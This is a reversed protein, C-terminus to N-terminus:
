AWGADQLVGVLAEPPLVVPNPKMSSSAASQEAVRRAIDPALPEPAPLGHSVAWAGLGDIGVGLAAQLMEEVADIRARVPHGDSLAARNARLVPALLQGCIAGHAAGTEGGLVGALGHAAGLGANALAIGSAFAVQALDDRAGPDEREVLIALANLGMPIAEACLGDTFSNARRSLWPEIVQTVADLGSSLTVDRPAGDTLSPDVVILRAMMRPDRLSVKRRHIPVSIVANRTAESGTGATTPMAVFPLPPATLPQGKGVVELHDLPDVGPVPMLAALAKGFDLAAGGGVAVVVEPAEQALASMLM